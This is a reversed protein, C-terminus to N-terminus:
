GNHATSVANDLTDKVWASLTKDKSTAEDRYSELQEKTVRIPPLVSDASKKATSGIPRGRKKKIIDM